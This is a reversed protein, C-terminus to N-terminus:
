TADQEGKQLANWDKWAREALRRTFRPYPKLDATTLFGKRKKYLELLEHILRHQNPCIAIINETKDPGDWSLPVIHHRDIIRIKPLHTKSCPCTITESVLVRPETM